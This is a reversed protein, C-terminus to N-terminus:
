GAMMALMQQDTKLRNLIEDYISNRFLSAGSHVIFFSFLSIINKMVIKVSDNIYFGM